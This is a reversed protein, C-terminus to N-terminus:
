RIWRRPTVVLSQPPTPTIVSSCIHQSVLCGDSSKMVWTYAVNCPRRRTVLDSQTVSLNFHGIAQPTSEYEFSTVIVAMGEGSATAAFAAGILLSTVAVIM